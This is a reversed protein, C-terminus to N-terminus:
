FYPRFAEQLEPSLRKFDVRQKKIEARLREEGGVARVLRAALDQALQQLVERPIQKPDRVAFTERAPDGSCVGDAVRYLGGGDDPQYYRGERAKPHIRRFYGNTLYYTAGSQQGASEQVKGFLWQSGTWNANDAMQECLARIDQALPEVKIAAAPLRLGLVPDHVFRPAQKSDAALAGPSVGAGLLALLVAPGLRKIATSPM